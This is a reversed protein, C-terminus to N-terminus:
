RKKVEGANMTLSDWATVAHGRDAHQVNGNAVNVAIGEMGVRQMESSGTHANYDMDNSTHSACSLLACRAACLPLPVNESPLPRSVSTLPPPPPSSPPLPPRFPLDAGGLGHWPGLANCAAAAVTLCGMGQM